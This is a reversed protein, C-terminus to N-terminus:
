RPRRRTCRSRRRETGAGRDLLGPDVHPREAGVVAPEAAGDADYRACHQDSLRHRVPRRRDFPPYGWTVTATGLGGTVTLNKPPNAPLPPDVTWDFSVSASLKDPDTATVIATGSGPQTPYGAVYNDNMHLGAPLGSATFTMKSRDTAKIPLLAVAGVM